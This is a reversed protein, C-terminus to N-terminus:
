RPDEHVTEQLAPNYWYSSRKKWGHGRLNQGWAMRGAYDPYFYCKLEGGGNKFVDKMYYCETIKGDMVILWQTVGDKVRCYREVTMWNDPDEMRSRAIAHVFQQNRTSM